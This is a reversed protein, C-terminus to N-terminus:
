SQYCEEEWKRKYEELEDLWHVQHRILEAFKQREESLAEEVMQLVFEKMDDPHEYLRGVYKEPGEDDLFYCDLEACPYVEFEQGEIDVVIGRLEFQTVLAEKISFKLRDAYYLRNVM